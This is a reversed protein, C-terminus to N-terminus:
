PEPPAGATIAGNLSEGFNFNIHISDQIMGLEVIKKCYRGFKRWLHNFVPRDGGRRQFEIVFRDNGCSYARVKFVCEIGNEVFKAKIACKQISEKEIEINTEQEEVFVWLLNRVLCPDSTFVPLLTYELVFEPDEPAKPIEESEKGWLPKGINSEFQQVMSSIDTCQEKFSPSIDVSEPSMFSAGYITTLGNFLLFASLCWKIGLPVQKNCGILAM